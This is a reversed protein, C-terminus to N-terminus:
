TLRPAGLAAAVLANGSLDPAAWTARVEAAETPSLAATAAEPFREVNDGELRLLGPQSVARLELDAAVRDLLRTVNRNGGLGVLLTEGPAQPAARRCACAGGCDSM